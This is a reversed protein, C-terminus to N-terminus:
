DGGRVEYRDLRNAAILLGGVLVVCVLIVSGTLDLGERVPTRPAIADVIALTSERLSFNRTGPLL